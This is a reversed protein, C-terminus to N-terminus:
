HETFIAKVHPHIQVLNKMGSDLILVERFQGVGEFPSRTHEDILQSLTSPEWNEFSSGSINFYILLKTAPPYNKKAKKLIEARLTLWPDALPPGNPVLKQNGTKLAEKFRKHRRYGPAMAEVVEIGGMEKDDISYLKFDPRETKEAFYPPTIGGKIMLDCATCLIRWERVAKFKDSFYESGDTQSDLAAVTAFEDNIIKKESSTNM